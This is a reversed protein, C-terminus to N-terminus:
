THLPYHPYGNIICISVFNIILFIGLQNMTLMFFATRDYVKPILSVRINGEQDTYLKYGKNPEKGQYHLVMGDSYTIIQKKQVVKMEDATMYFLTGDQMVAYADVEKKQHDENDLLNYTSANSFLILM